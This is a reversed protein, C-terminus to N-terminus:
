LECFTVILTLDEVHPLGELVDVFPQAGHEGIYNELFDIRVKKLKPM